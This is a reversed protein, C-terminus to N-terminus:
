SPYPAYLTNGAESFKHLSRHDRLQNTVKKLSNKSIECNSSKERSFVTDLKCAAFNLFNTNRCLYM